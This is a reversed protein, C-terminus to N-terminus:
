GGGRGFHRLFDALFSAESADSCPLDGAFSIVVESRPLELLGTRLSPLGLCSLSVAQGARSLRWGTPLRDVEWGILLPQLQREFEVPTLSMVLRSVAEVALSQRGSQWRM